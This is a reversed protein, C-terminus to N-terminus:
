QKTTVMICAVTKHPVIRPAPVKKQGGSCLGTTGLAGMETTRIQVFFRAQVIINLQLGQQLMHRKDRWIMNVLKLYFEFHQKFFLVLWPHIPGMGTGMWVPEGVEM